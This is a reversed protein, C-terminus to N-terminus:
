VQMKEVRHFISFIFANRCFDSNGSQRIIISLGESAMGAKFVAIDSAESFIEAMFDKSSELSVKSFEM